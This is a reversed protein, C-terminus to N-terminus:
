NNPRLSEELFREVRGLFDAENAPDVFGHGEKPYMVEEVRVGARRAESAFKRAHEVPVRRDEVGHALLVPVKIEAVRRLPSASALLDADAKPDGILQPMYFRRSEESIDSWHIDYMLGIDTVGAYSIACRYTGPHAIPGLLAAYGGYSTGMICVKDADVLGQEAAWKVTDALDDQMARGWQKWGARYHEFGYGMSGRFEPELVRYGRTALFQAEANWGLDSGRVFPGGHVLLVAPLPKDSAAGPPHTVYVPLRLGDRAPLRHFTRRGQTSENIWPRASGIPQLSRKTRNYLYYEGPQQDSASRVVFFPSTECAGCYLRNSRGPPLAADIGRQIRSMEVDFWYSMPRDLTFHVGVLRKSRSDVVATPRLDFGKVRILPEPVLRKGAVDFKYIGQESGALVLAQGDRDIHWLGFGGRGGFADFEALQSWAGTDVGRGYIYRRGERSASLLRPENDADLVWNETGAPMGYSLMRLRRTVTDLRGLAIETTEHKNDTVRKYVFVDNSGDGVPSRFFWGFPLIRSEIATDGGGTSWRWAILTRQDSGDHNVAFTGADGKSLNLVAGGQTHFAEFVLRDDNVWQAGTIDADSFGAALRAAGLPDLDVVALGRRGNADPTLIALRKGSPSVVVDLIEPQRAFHEAPPAATGASAFPAMAALLAACGWKSWRGGAARMSM